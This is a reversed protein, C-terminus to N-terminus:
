LKYSSFFETYADTAEEFTDFFEFHPYYSTQNLVIWKTKTM